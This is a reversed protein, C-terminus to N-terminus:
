ARVKGNDKNAGIHFGRHFLGWVFKNNSVIVMSGEVRIGEDPLDLKSLEETVPLYVRMTEAWWGECDTHHFGAGFYDEPGHGTVNRYKASFTQQRHPPVTVDISGHEKIFLLTDTGKEGTFEVAGAVKLETSVRRRENSITEAQAATPYEREDGPHVRSQKVSTYQVRMRRSDGSIELVKYFGWFNEYEQGETFTIGQLTVSRAHPNSIENLDEDYWKGDVLIAENM